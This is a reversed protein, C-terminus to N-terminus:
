RALLVGGPRGGARRLEGEALQQRTGWWWAESDQGDTLLRMIESRACVSGDYDADAYTPVADYVTGCLSRGLCEEGKITTATRV